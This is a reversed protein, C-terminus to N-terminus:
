EVVTVGLFGALICVTGIFFLPPYNANVFIYDSVISLPVMLLWGLNAMLPTALLVGTAMLLNFLSHGIASLFVGFGVDVESPLFGQTNPESDLGLDYLIIAPVWGALLIALGMLGFLMFFDLEKNDDHQPALSKLLVVYLSVSITNFEQV